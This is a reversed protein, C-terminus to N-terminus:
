ASGHTGSRGTRTDPPDGKAVVRPKKQQPRDRMFQAVHVFRPMREVKVPFRANRKLRPDQREIKRQVNCNRQKRKGKSRPTFRQRRHTRQKRLSRDCRREKDENWDTGPIDIVHGTTDPACIQKFRKAKGINRLPVM